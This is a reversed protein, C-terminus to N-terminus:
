DLKCIKSFIDKLLKGVPLLGYNKKFLLFGNKAIKERDWPKKKLFLIAKALEEPKNVSVLIGAKSKKILEKTALNKGAIFPRSCAMISYTKGTVVTSAKISKGFPGALCVSSSNILSPLEKYPAPQRFLVKELRNKKAFEVAKNKEPGEGVFIFFINYKKLKKASELVYFVGHAPLYGLYYLVTFKKQKTKKPKFLDDEAGVPVVALRENKINFLKCILSKHAKTDVLSLNSFRLVAWDSLYLFLARSSKKGCEKYDFVSTIYRSVFFDSILPKKKIFSLIKAIWFFRQAPYQLFLADYDQKVGERFFFFLKNLKGKMDFSNIETIEVGARKLGKKFVRNRVYDPYQGFFCIKM